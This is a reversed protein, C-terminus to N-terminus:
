PDDHLSVGDPLNTRGITSLREAMAKQARLMAINGLASDEGGGGSTQSSGAKMRENLRKSRVSLDEKRKAEQQARTSAKKVTLRTPVLPKGVPGEMAEDGMPADGGKPVTATNILTPSAPARSRVGARDAFISHPVSLDDEDDDINFGGGKDEKDKTHAKDGVIHGEERVRQDLERITKRSKIRVNFAYAPAEGITGVSRSEVSMEDEEEEDLASAMWKNTPSASGEVTGSLVEMMKSLVQEGASLNELTDAWPESNDTGQTLDFVGQDSLHLYPQVRLLLGHAGQQLGLLVASLREHAATAVKFDNKAAAITAELQDNVERSPEEIAGSSATGGEIKEPATKPRVLKNEEHTLEHRLQGSGSKVAELRAEADKTEQLLNGKNGRQSSFKEHMDVLSSVGTIQKLQSFAEEMALFRKNSDENAKQLTKTRELKDTIQARLFAEEEKTLDGRLEKALQEKDLKRSRMWDQLSLANDYEVRRQAIAVERDKRANALNSQTAESVLTAKALGIDLSRRLLKVEDGEKKISEMVGEMGGMHVNFKLQNKRLRLLMHDLQRTYHSKRFIDNEVKEIEEQLAEIRQGELTEAKLLADLEEFNKKEETLRDLKQKLDKTLRDNTSRLDNYKRTSYNVGNEIISIQQKISADDITGTKLSGEVSWFASPASQIFAPNLRRAAEILDRKHQIQKSPAQGYLSPPSPIEQLPILKTNKTKRRQSAAVPSDVM